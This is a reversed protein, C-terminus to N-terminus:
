SEALITTISIIQGNTLLEENELADFISEPYCNLADALAMILETIRKLDM